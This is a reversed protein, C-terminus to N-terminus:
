VNKAKLVCLEASRRENEAILQRNLECLRVNKAELDVYRKELFSIKESIDILMSIIKELKNEVM